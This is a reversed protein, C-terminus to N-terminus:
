KENCLALISVRTEIQALRRNAGGWAEFGGFRVTDAAGTQPCGSRVGISVRGAGQRRRSSGASAQAVKRRPRNAKAWVADVGAPGVASWAAFVMGTSVPGETSCGFDFSAM